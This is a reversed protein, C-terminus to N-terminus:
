PQTRELFELYNGEPDLAYCIGVRAGDPTERYKPETIFEIGKASLAAYTENLDDVNFCIHSAGYQHHDSLQLGWSALELGSFFLADGTLEQPKPHLYYVLELQHSGGPIGVFVLKRRAGPIGTHDGGAPAISDVERLVHLGLAGCYFDLMAQLDRVVVGSHNFGTVM